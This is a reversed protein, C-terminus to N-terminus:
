TKIRKRFKNLKLQESTINSYDNQTPWLRLGGYGHVRDSRPNVKQWTHIKNVDTILPMFGKDLVDQEVKVDPDITWVFPTEIDKIANIFESKELSQM